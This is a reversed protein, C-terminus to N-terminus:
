VEYRVSKGLEKDCFWLEDKHFEYYPIAEKMSQKLELFEKLNDKFYKYGDEYSVFEKQYEYFYFRTNTCFWEDYDPCYAIIFTPFESSFDYGQPVVKYEINM